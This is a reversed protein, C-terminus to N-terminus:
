ADLPQQASVREYQKFYAIAKELFAPDDKFRGLGTNCRDCIWGRGQGTSNNHEAVIKATVGVIMPDQCIPCTYVSHQPPKDREMRRKERATISKGTIDIRCERCSPRYTKRGRVDSQNIEFDNMHDKLMFCTNCIKYPYPPGTKPKGTKTVDLKQVCRQPMLILRNPRIFRVRVDGNVHKVQGVSRAAIGGFTQVVVVFDGSKM